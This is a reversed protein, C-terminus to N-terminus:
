SLVQMRLKWLREEVSLILRMTSLVFLTYTERISVHAPCLEVAAKVLAHQFHSQVAPM